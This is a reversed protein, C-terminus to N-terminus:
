AVRELLLLGTLFVPAGATLSDVRDLVGGHGPLLTGSDKVGQDRKLLSEWLDGVISFAVTILALAVFASLRLGAYGLASGALASYVASAAMAGAVGEWSKGPSVRPALKRRGWRRGSFYAGSDAVWMLVMTFLLVWPGFGADGHIGVLAGWAPVLTLFGGVAKAARPWLGGHGAGPRYTVVWATAILWWVVAVILVVTLTGQRVILEGTLYLAAAMLLLYVSRAATSRLPILRTWEWTGLMVLAALIWALYLTPLGFIAWVVLPILILATIVRHKLM